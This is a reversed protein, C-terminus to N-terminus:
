IFARLHAALIEGPRQSAAVDKWSWCHWTSALVRFPGWNRARSKASVIQESVFLRTPYGDRAGLCLLANILSPQCGEPLRLGKLHLYRIGKEYHELVEDCVLLLEELEAVM